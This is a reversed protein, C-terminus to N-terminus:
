SAMGKRQFHVEVAMGESVEDSEANMHTSISRGLWRCTPMIRVPTGLRRQRHWQPPTTGVERMVELVVSEPPWLRGRGAGRLGKASCPCDRMLHWILKLRHNEYM